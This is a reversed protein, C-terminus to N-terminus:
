PSNSSATRLSEPPYPSVGARDELIRGARTDTRRVALAWVGAGFRPSSRSGLWALMNLAPFMIAYALKNREEARTIRFSINNALNELWGYTFGSKEIVFDARQLREVLEPQHYGPRVHGPVNFNVRWRFIPWRRYYCPVHVLLRGGERLSGHLNGLVLEDDRIHELNDISVILDYKEPNRFRILDACIYDIRTQGLALALRKNRAQMAEDGDVADIGAHPYIRSLERSIVGRGCGADLIKSAELPLLARLRRLRIRLGVIPIGLLRCYWREPVSLNEDLYLESGPFRM